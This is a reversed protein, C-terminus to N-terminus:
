TSAEESIDNSKTGSGEPDQDDQDKTTSEKLPVREEEEEEEDDGQGQWSSEIEVEADDILDTPIILNLIIATISGIFYPTNIAIMCGVRFSDAASSMGEDYPWWQNPRDASAGIGPASFAPVLATGVGLALSAAVIYHTRRDIRHFGILKIGSLMINAFLFTLAGGLVCNPISLIWAGIKAIVGFIFLWFGCAYGASTSACKTLAVIGNNQSLTTNPTTTGLAAFFTSLTDGLLGGQIRKAHDKGFPKLRSAHETATIDGFTEMATVVFAFLMPIIAPTHIGIPFTEVWLFTFVESNKMRDSTVFSQGEYTAIASIAYGGLLGWIVMTNRFFPSGFIEVILFILFVSFGLAVYPGSGYGLMVEGNGPCPNDPSPNRSCGVGGGWFRIGAGTLQVGILFVTIGLVYPPCVRKLIKNPIFAIAGELWVCLMITGLLKGWAQQFDYGASMIDFLIVPFIANYQNATGMTSLIGTGLQYNTFPIPIASVQVMTGIGSCILSASVLYQALDLVQERNAAQVEGQNPDYTEPFYSMVVSSVLLAPTIINTSMTLAHQLGIMLSVFLSLTEDHAYFPPPDFAKGKNCFPWRPTCLFKWDYDGLLAAKRGK